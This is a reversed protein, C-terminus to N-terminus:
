GPLWGDEYRGPKRHPVRSYAEHPDNTEQEVGAEHGRAVDDVPYGGWDPSDAHERSGMALIVAPGSGAGIITHKTGPPCHVLDWARLPREEGEVVLLAEGALVLFDEQDAEWHYMSMPERPGLVFLNAGLQRFQAAGEGEFVVVAGRGPARRWRADRANLVFWGEDEPVLGHETEEVRAEAVM